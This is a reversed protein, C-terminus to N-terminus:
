DFPRLPALTLLPPRQMVIVMSISVTLPQTSLSTTQVATHDMMSDSAGTSRHMMLMGGSDSQVRM